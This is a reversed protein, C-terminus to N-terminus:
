LNLSKELQTIKKKILKVVEISTEEDLIKILNLITEKFEKIEIKFPEKNIISEQKPITIKLYDEIFNISIPILDQKRITGYKRINGAKNTLQQNLFTEKSLKNLNIYFITENINIYNFYDPQFENDFIMITQKIQNFAKYNIEKVRINNRLLYPFILNKTEISNM